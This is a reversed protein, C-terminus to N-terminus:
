VWFSTWVSEVDWDVFDRLKERLIDACAISPIPVWSRKGRV